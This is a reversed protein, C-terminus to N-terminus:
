LNLLLKLLNLKLDILTLLAISGFYLIFNIPKTM